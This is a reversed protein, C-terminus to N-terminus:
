SDSHLTGWSEEAFLVRALPSDGFTCSFLAFNRLARSGLLHMLSGQHQRHKSKELGHRGLGPGQPYRRLALVLHIGGLM